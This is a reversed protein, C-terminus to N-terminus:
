DDIGEFYSDIVYTKFQTWTYTEGTEEEVWTQARNLFQDAKWLANPSNTNYAVEAEGTTAEPNNRIWVILGKMIENSNEGIDFRNLPSFSIELKSDIATARAEGQSSYESADAFRLIKHVIDGSPSRSFRYLVEYGFATDNTKLVSHSWSGASYANMPFLVIATLIISIKKM